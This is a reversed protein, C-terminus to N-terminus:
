GNLRLKRIFKLFAANDQIRFKDHEMAKAQALIAAKSKARDSEARAKMAALHEPTGKLSVIWAKHTTIYDIDAESLDVLPTVLLRYPNPENTDQTPTTDMGNVPANIIQRRLQFDGAGLIWRVGFRLAQM